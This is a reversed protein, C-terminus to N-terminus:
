GVSKWGDQLAFKELEELTRQGQYKRGETPGKVDENNGPFFILTPYGKVEMAKCLPQGGDTTCDVTGVNIEDIHLRNFESWIPALRQCHGCWPAFFKIFWSKESKMATKKNEDESDLDIVLQKFTAIDLVSPEWQTDHASKKKM